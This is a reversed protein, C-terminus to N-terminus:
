FSVSPSKGITWRNLIQRGICTVCTWDRTQSSEVYCPVALGTLWFQQAWTSGVNRLGAHELAWAGCSFGSCSSSGNSAVVLSVRLVYVFVWCLRFYCKRKRLLSQPPTVAGPPPSPMTKREIGKQVPKNKAVSRCTSSGWWLISSTGGATSAHNRLWQVM